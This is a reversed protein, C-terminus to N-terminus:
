TEEDRMYGIRHKTYLPEPAKLREVKRGLRDIDEVLVEIICATREHGRELKEVRAAIDKRTAMLERMRVFVDVVLIAMKIARPSNLVSSLMVVGHETFAYPLYKRHQGRGLKLTAIQSRLRDAEDATLRLMFRPPFREPNRRVAENLRKTPVGYLRALDSDLMVKEGRVVRILSEVPQPLNAIRPVRHAKSPM